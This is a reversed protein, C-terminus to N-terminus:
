GLPACAIRFDVHYHEDHRVWARGKMFNVHERLWAGRPTALLMPLYPPDFIVMALGADHRRASAALQFLHEAIAAFDIRLDDCRGAADFEISYGLKNTVSTPLPVSAGAANRVPVFFDVSLGNQHSRHPRIRGGGAWGTEGYVFVTGPLATALQAYADVVIDRVTSHVHTRGATVGLRSYASFNAGDTPLAVADELRGRSVTGFCRSAAWSPLATTVAWGALLARRHLRNM